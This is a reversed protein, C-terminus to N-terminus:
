NFYTKTEALFSKIVERAKMIERHSKISDYYTPPDGLKWESNEQYYATDFYIEDENQLNTVEITLTPRNDCALNKWFQTRVKYGQFNGRDEYPESEKM